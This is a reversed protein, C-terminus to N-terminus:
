VAIFQQKALIQTKLTFFNSKFRQIQVELDRFSVQNGTTAIAIATSKEDM